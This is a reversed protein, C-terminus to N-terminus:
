RPSPNSRDSPSEPIEYPFPYPELARVPIYQRMQIDFPGAIAYEIGRWRITRTFMVSVVAVFHIAQTLPLVSLPAHWPISSPIRCRKAEGDALGRIRREISRLLGLNTWQFLLWVAAVLAADRFQGQALSSAALVLGSTVCGAVILGHILVLPWRPHYLRADLLQRAIWERAKSVTTDERSVLIAATQRVERYRIEAMPAVLVDEFLADGWAELIDCDILASRKIALSGGWPIGYVGMQVIAAANWSWRVLSGLQRGPPEFWRAGFSAAAPADGLSGVLRRIWNSDPVGDADILAVVEVDNNLSQCALNLSQCKLSRRSNRQDAIRLSFRDDRHSQVFGRFVGCAPDSEDDAVVIVQFHPWDQAALGRLCDELHADAGRVCLIVAVRPRYESASEARIADRIQWQFQKVLLWQIAAILATAAVFVWVM